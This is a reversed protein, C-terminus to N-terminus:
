SHRSRPFYGRDDIIRFFEMWNYGENSSVDPSFRIGVGRQYRSVVQARQEFQYGEFPLQVKLAGRIESLAGVGEDLSVFCSREDWNTLTGSLPGESTILQCRLSFDSRNGITNDYYLPRYAASSTELRYIMGLYYATVIYVFSMVLIIKNFEILAVQMAEVLALLTVVVLAWAAFPRMKWASLIAVFALGCLVYNERMFEILLNPGLASVGDNLAQSLHVFYPSLLCFAIFQYVVTPRSLIIM